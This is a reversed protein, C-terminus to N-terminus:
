RTRAARAAPMMTLGSTILGGIWIASFLTHLGKVISIVAIQPM